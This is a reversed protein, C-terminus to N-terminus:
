NVCFFGVWLHRNPNAFANRITKLLHPPDIIFMLSRKESSYFHKTKNTHSDGHLKLFKRNISTGDCIIGLVKIDNCELCDIAKWILPFIDSASPSPMSFQAFPFCINSFIGRIMIVMITKALKRSCGNGSMTEKYEELQQM